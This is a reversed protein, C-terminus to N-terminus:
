PQPDLRVRVRVFPGPEENMRREYIENGYEYRVKYAVITERQELRTITHCRYVPESVRRVEIDRYIAGVLDDSDSDHTGNSHHVSVVDTDQETSCVEQEVPIHKTSYLPEVDIVRAKDVWTEGANAHHAVSLFVAVAAVLSFKM